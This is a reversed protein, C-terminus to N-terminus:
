LLDYLANQLTNNNDYYGNIPKIIFLVLIQKKSSISLKNLKTIKLTDKNM